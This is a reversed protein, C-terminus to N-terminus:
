QFLTFSGSENRIGGLAALFVLAEAANTARKALPLRVGRTYPGALTVPCRFWIEPSASGDPVRERRTPLTGAARMPPPPRRARLTAFPRQVVVPIGIARRMQLSSM